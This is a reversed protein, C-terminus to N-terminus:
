LVAVFFDIQCIHKATEKLMFFDQSIAIRPGEVDQSIAIGPGEIDPSIAIGPGEINLTADVCEAGVNFPCSVVIGSFQVPTQM